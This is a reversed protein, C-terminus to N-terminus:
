SQQRRAPILEEQATFKPFLRIMVPIVCLEAGIVCAYILWNNVDQETAYTGSLMFILHRCVKILFIHTGLVVLSYRGIFTIVPVKRGINKCAWFIGTVALFPVTYLLHFHLPECQVLLGIRHSTFYLVVAIPVLALLGWKDWKKSKPLLGLDKIEHGLIFYPMAMLATDIYSPNFFIPLKKYRWAIYALVIVIPYQILRKKTLKQLLYYIINVEFLSILFWLPTNYHYYRRLFPDLLSWWDWEGLWEAKCQTILVGYLCCTTLMFFIFPVIINNVKRRAFDFVGDYQKFFIGSLFYYLPIRFSQLMLNLRDPFIANDIHFAVILLICLGKM